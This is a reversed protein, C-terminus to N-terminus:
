NVCVRQTTNKKKKSLDPAWRSRCTSVGAEGVQREESRSLRDEGGERAHRDPGGCLNRAGHLTSARDKAIRKGGNRRATRRRLGGGFAHRGRAASTPEHEHRISRTSTPIPSLATM